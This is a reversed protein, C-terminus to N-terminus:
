GCIPLDVDRAVELTRDIELSVPTSPAVRLCRRARSVREQGPDPLQAHRQVKLDWANQAEATSPPKRSCRRWALNHSPPPTGMRRKTPGKPAFPYERDLLAGAEKERGELLAACVTAIVQAKDMADELVPAVTAARGEHKL